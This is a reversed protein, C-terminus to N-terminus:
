WIEVEKIHRLFMIYGDYLVLELEIQVTSDLQTIHHVVITKVVEPNFRQKLYPMLVEVMAQNPKFGAM